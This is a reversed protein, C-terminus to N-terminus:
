LWAKNPWRITITTGKTGRGATTGRSGGRGVRKRKTTTSVLQHAKM